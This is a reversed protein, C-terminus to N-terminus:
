SDRKDSPQEESRFISLKLLFKLLTKYIQKSNKSKRQIVIDFPFDKLITSLTSNHFFSMQALNPIRMLETYVIIFFHIAM